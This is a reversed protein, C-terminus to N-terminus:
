LKRNKEDDEDLEKEDLIEEKEVDNEDEIKIGKESKHRSLNLPNKKQLKIESIENKSENINNNSYKKELDILENLKL